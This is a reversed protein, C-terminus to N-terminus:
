LFADIVLACSRLKALSQVFLDCNMIDYKSLILAECLRDDIKGLLVHFHVGSWKCM